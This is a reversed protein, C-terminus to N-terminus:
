TLGEALGVDDWDAKLVEGALYLSGCILVRAAPARRCNACRRPSTPGPRALGGRPPSSRRWRCRSTSIPSRCRGSARRRLPLLPLLFETADKSQKMGVVLHVPRDSWSRLTAACRSRRRRSQPRRRAVAGLGAAAARGAARAPAAAPGAVRAPPRGAFARFRSAPGSAALRRLAAVAIGANDVQHPASCPRAAAPGARRGCRCLAARGSPPAIEWDRGRALLPAGAARRAGRDRWRRRPGARRDGGARGAEHHRGERRRDGRAHRRAILHDM